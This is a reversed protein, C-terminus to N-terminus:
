EAPGLLLSAATTTSEEAADAEDHKARCWLTMTCYKCRKEEPTARFYGNLMGGAFSHLLKELRDAQQELPFGFKNLAFKTLPKIQIDIGESSLKELSRMALGYMPLQLKLGQAADAELQSHASATGAKYDIVRLRGNSVHRDIRDIKGIYYFEESPVPLRAAPYHGATGDRQTGFQIECGEPRYGNELMELLDHRVFTELARRTLSREIQRLVRSKSPRELDLREFVDDIAQHLYTRIRPPLEDLTEARLTDFEAAPLHSYFHELIAHDVSGKTRPNLQLEDEPSEM